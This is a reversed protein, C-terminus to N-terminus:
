RKRLRQYILRPLGAPGPHVYEAEIQLGADRYYHQLRRSSQCLTDGWRGPLRRGTLRDYGTNTLM